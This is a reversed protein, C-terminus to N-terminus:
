SLEILCLSRPQMDINLVCPLDVQRETHEGDIYLRLLKSGQGEVEVQPSEGLDAYNALVVGIRGDQAKWTASQVLPEPGWGFDRHTVKNVKYPRLMRGFILYDRAIGARFQNSRKAWDIIAAQDPIARTWLQDWDYEILGKDRLTFCLIYGTVLSRAVSARLAEDSVRNQYFGLFGNAYEHYLFSFLPCNSVLARGDWTQFNRLFCEPPAGECSMATMSNRSRAVETDKELLRRFEDRQWPGPCPPHGHNPAYCAVPGPGQDFQQIVDPGFESMGRTMGLIMQRSNETGVCTWFSERWGDAGLSYVVPSGDWKRAIAAEGGHDRFYQTGDYKTNRQITVWNAGDGYIVPHWGKAHSKAMFESM